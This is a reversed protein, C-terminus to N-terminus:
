RDVRFRPLQSVNPGKNLFSVFFSNMLQSLSVNFYKSVFYSIFFDTSISETAYALSDVLQIKISVWM